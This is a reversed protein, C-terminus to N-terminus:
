ADFAARGSRSDTELELSLTRDNPALPPEVHGPHPPVDAPPVQPPEIVPPVEPITRPPVDTPVPDVPEISASLFMGM